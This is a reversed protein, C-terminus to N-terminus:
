TTDRQGDVPSMPHIDTGEKHLLSTVTYTYQYIDIHIEACSETAMSAM